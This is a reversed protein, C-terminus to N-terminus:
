LFFADALFQSHHHPALPEEDSDFNPKFHSFYVHPSMVEGSNNKSPYCTHGVGSIKKHGVHRGFQDIGLRGEKLTSRYLFLM